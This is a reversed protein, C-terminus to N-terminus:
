LLGEWFPVGRVGEYVGLEDLIRDLSDLEWNVVHRGDSAKQIDIALMLLPVAQVSALKM